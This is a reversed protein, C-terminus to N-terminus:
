MLSFLRSDRCADVITDFILIKMYFKITSFVFTSMPLSANSPRASARCDSQKLVQNSFLSPPDLLQLARCFSLLLPRHFYWFCDTCLVTRLVYLLMLTHIDTCQSPRSLRGVSGRQDVNGDPVIFTPSPCARAPAVPGCSRPGHAPLVTVSKLLALSPTVTSQISRRNNKNKLERTSAQARLQRQVWCALAPALM